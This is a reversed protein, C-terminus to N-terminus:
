VKQIPQLCDLGSKHPCLTVLSPRLVRSSFLLAGSCWLLLLQGHPSMVPSPKEMCVTSSIVVENPQVLRSPEVHVVDIGQSVADLSEVSGRTKNLEVDDHRDHWM